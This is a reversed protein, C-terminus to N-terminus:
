DGADRDIDLPIDGSTSARLQRWNVDLTVYARWIGDSARRQVSVIFLEGDPVTAAVEAESRTTTYWAGKSSVALFGHGEGHVFRDVQFALRYLDTRYEQDLVEQAIDALTVYLKARLSHKVTDWDFNPALETVEASTV